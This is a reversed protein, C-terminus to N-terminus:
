SKMSRCVWVWSKSNRHVAFSEFGSEEDWEQAEVVGDQDFSLGCPYADELGQHVDPNGCECVILQAPHGVCSHREVLHVKPLDPIQAYDARPKGKNNCTLWQAKDANLQGRGLQVTSQAM